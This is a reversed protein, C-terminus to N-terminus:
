LQGAKIRIAALAQAPTIDPTKPPVLLNRIVNLQDILALALAKFELSWVDVERQAALQPTLAATSDLASQAAAIQPATWATTKKGRWTADPQILLVAEADGVASRLTTTLAVQDPRTSRATSLTIYGAM